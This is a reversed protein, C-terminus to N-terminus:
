RGETDLRMGATDLDGGRDVTMGIYVGVDALFFPAVRFRSVRKFVFLPPANPRPGAGERGGLDGPNPILISAAFFAVPSIYKVIFTIERDYHRRKFLEDSNPM